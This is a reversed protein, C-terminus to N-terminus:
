RSLESVAAPPAGAGVVVANHSGNATWGCLMAVTALLTKNAAKEIFWFTKMETRPVLVALM